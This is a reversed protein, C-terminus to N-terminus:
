RSINIMLRDDTTKNRRLDPVKNARHAYRVVFQVLLAKHGNATLWACSGYKRVLNTSKSGRKNIAETDASQLRRACLLRNCHEGYCAKAMQQAHDVTCPKPFTLGAGARACKKSLQLCEASRHLSGDYSMLRFAFTTPPPFVGSGLFTSQVRAVDLLILITAASLWGVKVEPLVARHLSKRPLLHPGRQQRGATHSAHGLQQEQRGATLGCRREEM